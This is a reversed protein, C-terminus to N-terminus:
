GETIDNMCHCSIYFVIMNSSEDLRISMEQAYVLSVVFLKYKRSILYIIATHKNHGTKM